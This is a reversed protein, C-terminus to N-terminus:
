EILIRKSAIGSGSSIYLTYLGSALDFPLDLTLYEASFILNGDLTQEESSLINFGFNKQQNAKIGMSSLLMIASILLPTRM